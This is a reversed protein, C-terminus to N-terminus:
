KKLEVKLEAVRKRLIARANDANVFWNSETAIKMEEPNSRIYAEKKDLALLQNECQALEQAPSMKKSSPKTTENSSSEGGKILTIRETKKESSEASQSIGAFSFFMLGILTVSKMM